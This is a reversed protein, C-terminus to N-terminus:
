RHDLVDGGEMHKYSLVQPRVEAQFNVTQTQGNSFKVTLSVPVHDDVNLPRKLGSMMLSLNREGFSVAQSQPLSLEPVARQVVKGRDFGVRQITVSTAWPSEVKVLRAPRTVTLNLQLSVSTQGSVTERMWAKDVLVNEAAWANGAVVLMVMCVWIKWM